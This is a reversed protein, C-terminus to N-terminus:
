LRQSVVSVNFETIMTIQSDPPATPTIFSFESVNRIFGGDSMTVGSFSPTGDQIPTGDILMQMQSIDLEFMTPALTEDGPLPSVLLVAGPGFAGGSGFTETVARGSGPCAFAAPKDNDAAMVFGACATIAEGDLFGFVQFVAEGCSGNACLGWSRGKIKIEQSDGPLLVVSGGIPESMTNHPEPPLPICQGDDVALPYADGGGPDALAWVGASTDNQGSEVEPLDAVNKMEVTFEGDFIADSNNTVQFCFLQEDGAHGCRLPAGVLQVDLAPATGEATAAPLLCIQQDATQSVQMGDAFTVTSTVQAVCVRPPGAPVPIDIPIETFGEEISFPGFNFPGADPGPECDLVATMSVSAPFAPACQGEIGIFNTFHLTDITVVGGQAAPLNANQVGKAFVYTKACFFPPPTGGCALAHSVALGLASCGATALRAMRPINANM